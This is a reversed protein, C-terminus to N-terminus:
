IMARDGGSGPKSTESASACTFYQWRPPRARLLAWTIESSVICIHYLTAWGPKLHSLQFFLTCLPSAPRIVALEGLLQRAWCPLGAAAAAAQPPGGGWGGDMM